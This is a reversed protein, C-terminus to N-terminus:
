WNRRLTGESWGGNETRGNKEKGNENSGRNKKNLQKRLKVKEQQKETLTRYM